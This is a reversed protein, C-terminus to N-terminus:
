QGSAARCKPAQWTLGHTSDTFHAAQLTRLTAPQKRWPTKRPTQERSQTCAARNSGRAGRHGDQLRAASGQQAPALAGAARGQQEATFHAAKTLLHKSSFSSTRVGLSESAKRASSHQISAPKSLPDPARRWHSRCRHAAGSGAFCHAGHQAEVAGRSHGAQLPQQGTGRPQSPCSSDGCDSVPWPHAPHTCGEGPPEQPCLGPCPQERVAAKPHQAQAGMRTHTGTGGNIIVAQGKRQRHSGAACSVLVAEWWAALWGQAEESAAHAKRTHASHPPPHTHTPPPSLGMDLLWMHAAIAFLRM